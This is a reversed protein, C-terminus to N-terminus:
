SWPIQMCKSLGGLDAESLLEDASRPEDEGIMHALYAIHGLVAEHSGYLSLLEDLSADRDRKAIRRGDPAVMLPVHAYSPHPYGLLDQLFLHNATSPLLDCGRVVSNVGMEADDAVVALNYSYTGDARRVVFDGSEQSPVFSCASQFFDTFAIRDTPVAIRM